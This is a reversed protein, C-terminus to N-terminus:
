QWANVPKGGVDGLWQGGFVCKGWSGSDCCTLYAVMKIQASKLFKKCPNPDPSPYMWKVGRDATVLAGTYLKQIAENRQPGGAYKLVDKNTRGDIVECSQVTITINRGDSSFSCDAAAPFPVAANSVTLAVLLAVRTLANGISM